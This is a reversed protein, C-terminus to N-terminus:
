FVTSEDIRGDGDTDRLMIIRGQGEGPEPKYPYDPMEVVYINGSEDFVMSVPDKVHPETAFIEIEFDEHLQFTEMSEEATLPDPYRKESCSFGFLILLILLIPYKPM